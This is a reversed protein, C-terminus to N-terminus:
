NKKRETQKDSVPERQRSPERTWAGKTSPNLRLSPLCRTQTVYGPFPTASSPDKLRIGSGQVISCGGGRGRGGGGTKITHRKKGGVKICKRHCRFFPAVFVGALMRVGRDPEEWIVEEEVRRGDMWTWDRFAEKSPPCTDTSLVCYPLM